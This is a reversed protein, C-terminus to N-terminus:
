CSINIIKQWCTPWIICIIPEDPYRLVCIITLFIGYYTLLLAKNLMRVANPDAFDISLNGYQNRKVFPSFDPVAKILKAFDYGHRHKNRIHLPSANVTLSRNPM